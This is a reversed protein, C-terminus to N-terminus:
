TISARTFSANMATFRNSFALSGTVRAVAGKVLLPLVSGAPV